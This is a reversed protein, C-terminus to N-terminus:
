SHANISEQIEKIFSNWRSYADLYVEMLESFNDYVTEVVDVKEDGTFSITLTAKEAEQRYSIYRIETANAAITFGGPDYDIRIISTFM